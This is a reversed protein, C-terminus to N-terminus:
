EGEHYVGAEDYYGLTRGGLVNLLGDLEDDTQVGDRCLGVQFTHRGWRFQVGRGVKYPPSTGRAFADFAIHKTGDVGNDRTVWYVRGVYQLVNMTGRFLMYTLMSSYLFLVVVLAVLM